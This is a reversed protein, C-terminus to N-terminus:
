EYMTQQGAQVSQSAAALSPNDFSRDAATLDTSTDCYSMSPPLM